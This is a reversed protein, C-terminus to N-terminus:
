AVYSLPVVRLALMVVRHEDSEVPRFSMRNMGKALHAALQERYDRVAIRGALTLLEQRTPM